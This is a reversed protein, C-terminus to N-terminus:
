FVSYVSFELSFINKYLRRYRNGVLRRLHMMEIIYIYFISWTHLANSWFYHIKEWWSVCNYTMVYLIILIHNSNLEPSKISRMEVCWVLNYTSHFTSYIKTRKLSIAEPKFIWFESFKMFFKKSFIKGSGM